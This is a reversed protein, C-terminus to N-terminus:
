YSAGRTPQKSERLDRQNLEVKVTKQRGEIAKPLLGLKESLSTVAATLASDVKTGKTASDFTDSLAAGAMGAGVAVGGILGAKGLMSAAGGGVGLAGGGIESANVVYVPITKTGFAAEAGATKAATGLLGAGAGKLGKGALLAALLGGGGVVAASGAGSQSADSLLDTGKQSIASLPAALAGKVRNISAKFAEGFGMSKKYQDELSGTSSNVSDQATKVRDISEALRVFGEAAEESLGLTQAALRPDGGVRDLVEKSAAKFKEVDIGKDTFVGKFGQADMSARAVPSKGLYEQLFKTSNPGGVTAAASLNALGRSTIKERFDKSMSSFIERMSSLTEAAGTGTANFVRRVDEAVAAVQKMDNVNGGRAQIVQAISKAIDGERGQQRTASALQGSTRSYGVLSGQGAVPTGSGALGEMARTAVDSSLGIDGLGKTLNSQLKAFDRDAVGFTRGLKRIADSLTFTEKVAGRFQNSIALSDRIANLSILSKFDGRMGNAVRGAMSRLKTLFSETKKTEKEVGEGVSNGVEGVSKAVENAKNSILELEEVVKRLQSRVSLEVPEGAM